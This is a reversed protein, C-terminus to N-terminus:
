LDNVKAPNLSLGRFSLAVAVNVKARFLEHQKHALEKLREALGYFILMKTAKKIM